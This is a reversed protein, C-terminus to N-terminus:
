EHLIGNKLYGHWGANQISGAGAACTNGNKDVQLPDGVTGHRVWCRHVDDNPMWDERAGTKPDIITESVHCRHRLHWVWGMRDIFRQLKEHAERHRAEAQNYSSGDHQRLMDPPIAVAEIIRDGIRAVLMSSDSGPRAIDMAYVIPERTPM